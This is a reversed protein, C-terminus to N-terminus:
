SAEESLVTSDKMQELQAMFALPLSPTEADFVTKAAYVEIVTVLDSIQAESYGWSALLPKLTDAGGEVLSFADLGLRRIGEQGVIPAVASLPADKAAELCEPCDRQHRRQMLRAGALERCRMLAM